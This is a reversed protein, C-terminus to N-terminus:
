NHVKSALLSNSDAYPEYNTIIHAYNIFKYM